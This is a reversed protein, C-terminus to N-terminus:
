ALCYLLDSIRNVYILVAEPVKETQALQVLRRECRRAVTRAIHMQASPIDDGPVVFQFRTPAHADIQGEIWAIDSESIADDDHAGAIQAMAHFLREEVHKLCSAVDQAGDDSALARAMGLQAQLEDMTGYTEVRADSKLVRAGDALSTCGQDGTKTYIHTM